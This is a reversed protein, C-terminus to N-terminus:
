RPQIVLDTTEFRLSIQNNNVTLVDSLNLLEGISLVFVVDDRGSRDAHLWAIFGDLPAQAGADSFYSVLRRYLKPWIALNTLDSANTVPAGATTSDTAWVGAQNARAQTILQTLHARLDGPLGGVREGNDMRASYYGPYVHGARALEANLSQDMLDADLFIDAGSREPSNDAFLFSVPRNFPDITRCLIHARAVVPRTHRVYTPIDASPAYEMDALSFGAQELLHDRAAVTPATSQHNSNSKYHLELADIGEIRLQAFGGANLEASRGAIDELLRPNDPLFWISDGDPRSGVHRTSRYFLRIEGEILRYPM